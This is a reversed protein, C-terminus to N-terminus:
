LTRVTKFKLFDTPLKYRVTRALDELSTGHSADMNLSSLDPPDDRSVRFVSKSTDYDRIEFEDFEIKYKNDSM